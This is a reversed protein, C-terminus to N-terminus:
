TIGRDYRDPPWRHGCESGGRGEGSECGAESARDVGGRLAGFRDWRKSTTILVVISSQEGQDECRTADQKLQGTYVRVYHGM